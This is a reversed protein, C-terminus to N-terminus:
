TLCAVCVAMVMMIMILVANGINLDLEGCVSCM